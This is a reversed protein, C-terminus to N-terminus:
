EKNEQGEGEELRLAKTGDDYNIYLSDKPKLERALKFETRKDPFATETLIFAIDAKQPELLLEDYVYISTDKRLGKPNFTKSYITKNDMIVELTIPSRETAFAAGTKQMHKLHSYAEKGETTKIASSRYKFSMVIISKDKPYFAMKHTTLPYFIVIPLFLLVTALAYNIRNPAKIVVKEFRKKDQLDRSFEALDGSIDKIYPAHLIRILSPDSDKKLKPIRKGEYREDFWKNGERFHCDQPECSVMLLGKVGKQLLEETQHTNVAGICPVTFTLLGERAPPIASYPCRFAVLEPRKEDITKRINEFPFTPIDIVLTNCSGVCTGCGSCKNNDIVAKQKGEMDMMTIAEYPCDIHCQECGVCKETNIRAVPARKGGIIWPLVTLLIFTGIFALWNYSIPMVKLMPYGFLYFWDLTMEFPLKSINAVPDSKAPLFLSFLILCVTIIGYIFRPPILRPRSIRMVHIWLTFIILITLAVHAFLLVRFLGGINKIDTSLVTSMLAKGFIPIFSLFKATLIGVMQAREDWILIYGSIGIFLFIMITAVGTVWAIWRFKRFRDTIVVHIMHGISTLILADSTYRHLGRMINGIFQNSIAEVSAHSLKPDIAYFIFLYIGTIADIILLYVTIAGLYYIPNLNSSFFRSTNYSLYQFCRNLLTIHGTQM